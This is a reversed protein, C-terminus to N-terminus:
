LPCIYFKILNNFPCIHPSYTIALLVLFSDPVYLSLVTYRTLTHKEPLLPIMYAWFDVQLQWLTRWSSGSADAYRVADCKQTLNKGRSLPMTVSVPFLSDVRGVWSITSIGTYMCFDLLDRLFKTSFIRRSLSPRFKTVSIQPHELLVLPNNLNKDHWM